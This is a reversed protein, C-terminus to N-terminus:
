PYFTLAFAYHLQTAKIILRTNWGCHGRPRNGTYVTATQERKKLSIKHEADPLGECGESVVYEPAYLTVVAM